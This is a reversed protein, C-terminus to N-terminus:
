SPNAANTTSNGILVTYGDPASKAVYESAIIGSAGPKNEIVVPKGTRQQVSLAVTRALQDTASGATNPVIFRIPKDPFTSAFAGAAAGLSILAAMMQILLNKMRVGEEA